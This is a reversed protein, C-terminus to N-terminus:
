DLKKQKTQQYYADIWEEKLYGESDFREPHWRMWSALIATGRDKFTASKSGIEQFHTKGYRKKLTEVARARSEEMKRPPHNIQGM